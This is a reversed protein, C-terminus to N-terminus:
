RITVTKRVTVFQGTFAPVRATRMKSAICSGTATGVFPPGAITATTVRGSPAFTITVVAVGSPDEAQRCSSAREAAGDLASTAEETDFKSQDEPPSDVEAKAQKQRDRTAPQANETDSPAQEIAPSVAKTKAQPPLDQATPQTAKTPAIGSETPQASAAGLVAGSPVVQAIPLVSAVPALAAGAPSTVVESNTSRTRNYVVFAVALTMGLGFLAISSRAPKRQVLPATDRTLPADSRIDRSGPQPSSKPVADSANLAASPVATNESVDTAAAPKNSADASAAAGVLPDATATAAVPELGTPVAPPAIQVPPRAGGQREPPPPKPRRQMASSAQGEGPDRRELAVTRPQAPLEPSNFARTPEDEEDAIRSVAIENPIAQRPLGRIPTPDESGLATAEAAVDLAAARKGPPAAPLPGLTINSSPLWDPRTSRGAKEDSTCSVLRFSAGCEPCHIVAGSDESKALHDLDPSSQPKTEPQGSEISSMKPGIGNSAWRHIRREPRALIRGGISINYRARGVVLCKAAETCVTSYCHTEGCRFSPRYLRIQLPTSRQGVRKWSSSDHGISSRQQLMQTQNPAIVTARAITAHLSAAADREAASAYVGLLANEPRVRKCNIALSVADVPQASWGVVV